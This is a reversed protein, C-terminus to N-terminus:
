GSVVPKAAQVRSELDAYTADDILQKDNAGGVRHQAEGASSYAIHLFRILERNSHNWKKRGCGEAINSGISEAAETVQGALGLLHQPFSATAEYVAKSYARALHYVELKNFDEM